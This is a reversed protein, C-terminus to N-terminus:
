RKTEGSGKKEKEIKERDGNKQIKQKKRTEKNNPKDTKRKKRNKDRKKKTEKGKETEKDGKKQGERDWKAKSGAREREMRRANRSRWWRKKTKMAKKKFESMKSTKSIGQTDQNTMEKQLERKTFFANSMLIKGILTNRQYRKITRRKENNEPHADNVDSHVGFLRLYQAHLKYKYQGVQIWVCTHAM